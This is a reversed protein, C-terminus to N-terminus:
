PDGKSYARTDVGCLRKKPEDAAIHMVATSNNIRRTNFYDGSARKRQRHAGQTSSTGATFAYMM